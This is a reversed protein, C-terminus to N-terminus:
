QKTKTTDDVTVRPNRRLGQRLQSGLTHLQDDHSPVGDPPGVAALEHGPLTCSSLLFLTPPSAEETLNFRVSGQRM